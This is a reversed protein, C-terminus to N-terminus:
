GSHKNTAVCLRAVILLLIVFAGLSWSQSTEHNSKIDNNKNKNNTNTSNDEFLFTLFREVIM